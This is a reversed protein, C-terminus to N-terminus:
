DIHTEEKEAVKAGKLARQLRGMPGCNALGLHWGSHIFPEAVKSIILYQLM